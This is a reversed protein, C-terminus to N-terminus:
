HFDIIIEECDFRIDQNSPIVDALVKTDTCARRKPANRNDEINPRTQEGFSDNSIRVAPVITATAEVRLRNEASAGAWPQVPSVLLGCLAGGGIILKTPSLRFKNHREM